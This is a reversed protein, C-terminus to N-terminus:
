FSLLLVSGLAREDWTSFFPTKIPLTTLLFTKVVSADSVPQPAKQLTLGATASLRARLSLAM